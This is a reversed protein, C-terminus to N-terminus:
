ARAYSRVMTARMQLPSRAAPVTAPLELCVTAEFRLTRNQVKGRLVPAGSLASRVPALPRVIDVASALCDSVLKTCVACCARWRTHKHGRRHQRMGRSAQIQKPRWCTRVLPTPLLASPLGSASGLAGFAHAAKADQQVQGCGGSHLLSLPGTPVAPGDCPVRKRHRAVLLHQQLLLLRSPLGDLLARALGRQRHLLLGCKRGRDVRRDQPLRALQVAPAKRAPLGDPVGSREPACAEARQASPPQETEYSDRKDCV